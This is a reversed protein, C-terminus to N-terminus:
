IKTAIANVVISNGNIVETYTITLVPILLTGSGSVTVSNSLTQQAITLTNGSITGAVTIGAGYNAFNNLLMVDNHQTSPVITMSFAPKSMAKGNETWTETVSYTSVFQSVIEPENIKNCRTLIITAFLVLTIFATNKM